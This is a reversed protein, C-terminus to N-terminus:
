CFAKAYEGFAATKLPKWTLDNDFHRLGGWDRKSLREIFKHAIEPYNYALRDRFRGGCEDHRWLLNYLPCM